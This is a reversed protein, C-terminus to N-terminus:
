VECTGVQMAMEELVDHENYTGNLKCKALQTNLTHIDQVTLEQETELDEGREVTVVSNCAHVTVLFDKNLIHVNNIALFM